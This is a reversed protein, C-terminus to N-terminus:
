GSVDLPFREPSIGRLYVDERSYTPNTKALFFLNTSHCVYLKSRRRVCNGCKYKVQDVSNQISVKTNIDIDAAIM